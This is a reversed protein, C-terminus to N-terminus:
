PRVGRERIFYHPVFLEGTFDKERLRRHEHQLAFSSTFHRRNGLQLSCCLHIQAIGLYKKLVGIPSSNIESGSPSSNRLGSRAHSTARAMIRSNSFVSPASFPRKLAMRSTVSPSPSITSSNGNASAIRSKGSVGTVLCQRAQ